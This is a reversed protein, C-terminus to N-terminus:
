LMDRNDNNSFTHFLWFIGTALLRNLFFILVVNNSITAKFMYNTDFATEDPILTSPGSQM